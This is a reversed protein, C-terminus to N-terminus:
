CSEKIFFIDEFTVDLKDAIQKAIKASPSREGSVILNLYNPTIGVEKSFDSQSYGNIILIKKFESPNKVTVKM